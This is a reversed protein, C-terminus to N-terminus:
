NQKLAKPALKKAIKLEFSFTSGKDKASEVKIDGGMKEILTKVIFLGLGTVPINKTEDNKVRYFKEFLNEKESRTMGFGEDTINTTLMDKTKDHNIIIKRKEPSYKIANDILNTLVERLKDRNAIVEINKIEEYELEIHKKKAKLSLSKIVEKAVDNIDIQELEIQMKGSESRIVELLDAVLNALHKNVIQANLLSDKVKGNIKGMNGDLIMSLYGDVTFIPNGLEHAVVYVFGDKVKDLEKETRADHINFVLGRIKAEKSFIPAIAISVPILKNNKNKIFIDERHTKRVVLGQKMATKIYDENLKRGNKDRLDIFNRYHRFTVEQSTYGTISEVKPNYLLIQGDKNVVILGEGMSQMIAEDQDQELKM